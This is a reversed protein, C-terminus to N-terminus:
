PLQADAPRQLKMPKCLPAQPSSVQVLSRALEILSVVQACLRPLDQPRSWDLPTTLITHELSMVAELAAGSVDCCLVMHARAQKVIGQLDKVARKCESLWRVYLDPTGDM